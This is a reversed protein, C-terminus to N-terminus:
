AAGGIRGLRLLRRRAFSVTPRISPREPRPAPTPAAWDVPVRRVGNAGRMLLPPNCSTMRAVADRTRSVSYGALRALTVAPVARDTAAEYVCRELETLWSPLTM